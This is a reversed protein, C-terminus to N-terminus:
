VGLGGCTKDSKIDLTVALQRGNNGITILGSQTTGGSVFCIFVGGTPDTPSTAMSSNVADVGDTATKGITSKLANDDIPVVVVQQSGSVVAGGSAPALSNMFAVEGIKKDGSGNNYWMRYVTLGEQLADTTDADPVGPEASSPAVAKPKASTLSTVENGAGDKQLGAITHVVFREPDSGVGFQMAKGLFICGANAGQGTGAATTINPGSGGSTCRISGINPFYGIAVENIVQQIQSQTQRIAQDFATQNQKGALLAATTAFLLGTIALVILVEIVTFGQGSPTV